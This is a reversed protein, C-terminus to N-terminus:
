ARGVANEIQEVDSRLTDHSAGVHQQDVKMRIRGLREDVARLRQKQGLQRVKEGIDRDGPFSIDLASGEDGRVRSVLGCCATELRQGHRLLDLELKSRVRRREGRQRLMRNKSRQEIAAWPARLEKRTIVVSCRRLQVLRANRKPQS